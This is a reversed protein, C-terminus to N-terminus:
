KRYPRITIRPHYIIPRGLCFSDDVIQKGGGVLNDPLLCEYPLTWEYSECCKKMGAGFGFSECCIVEGQPCEGYSKVNVGARAAKRANVYTQGDCGCVPSIDLTIALPMQSCIGEGECDGKDKKCYEGSTCDSHEYCTVEDSMCNGDLCTEEAACITDLRTIKRPWVEIPGSNIGPQGLSEIVLDHTGAPVYLLSFKGDDDTMAMISIKPIYVLAGMIPTGTSCDEVIGDVQGSFARGLPASRAQSSMVFCVMIVAVLTLHVVKKMSKM